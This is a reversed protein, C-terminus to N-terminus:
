AAAREFQTSAFTAIVASALIMRRFNAPVLTMSRRPRFVEDGRVIPRGSLVCFGDDRALGLRWIQEAYHGAQSDSWYISLTHASLMEQVVIRAPLPIWEARHSNQAAPVRERRMKKKFSTEVPPTLFLPRPFLLSLLAREIIEGDDSTSAAKSMPMRM